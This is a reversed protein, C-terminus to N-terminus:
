ARRVVPAFLLVRSNDIDVGMVKKNEKDAKELTKKAAKVRKQIFGVIEDISLRSIERGCQLCHPKGIRAFLVACTTM